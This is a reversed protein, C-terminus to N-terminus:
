VQVLLSACLLVFLFLRSMLFSCDFLGVSAGFSVSPVFSVVYFYYIFSVFFNFSASSASCDCFRVLVSSASPISSASSVCPFLPASPDSLAFSSFPSASFTFSLLLRCLLVLFVALLCCM